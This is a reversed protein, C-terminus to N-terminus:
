TSTSWDHLVALDGSALSTALGAWALLRWLAVARLRNYRRAGDPPGDVLAWLAHRSRARAVQACAVRGAREVTYPDGLEGVCRRGVYVWSAAPIPVLGDPQEPVHVVHVGWPDRAGTRTYGPQDAGLKRARAGAEATGDRIEPSEGGVESAKRMTLGSPCACGLGPPAAVFADGDLSWTARAGDHGTVVGVPDVEEGPAPVVVGVASRRVSQVGIRHVSRATGLYARLLWSATLTAGMGAADTAKCAYAKAAYAKAVDDGGKPEDFTVSVDGLQQGTTDAAWRDWGELCLHALEGRAACRRTYRGLAEVDGPDPSLPRARWGVRPDFPALGQLTDSLPRRNWSWTIQTTGVLHAHLHVTPLVGEGMCLPCAGDRCAERWEKRWGGGKVRLPCALKSRPLHWQPVVEWTWVASRLVGMDRLTRVMARVDEVRRAAGAYTATPQGTFVALTFREGEDCELAGVARWMSRRRCSACAASGCPSGLRVCRGGMIVKARPEHDALAFPRWVYSAVLTDSTWGAPCRASSELVRRLRAAPTETVPPEVYWGPHDALPFARLTDAVRALEARESGAHNAAHRAM